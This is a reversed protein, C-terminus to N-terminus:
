WESQQDDLVIGRSRYWYRFIESTQVMWFSPSSYLQVQRSTALRSIETQWWNGHGWQLKSQRLRRFTTRPCHPRGQYLSFVSSWIQQWHQSVTWTEPLSTHVIHWHDGYPLTFLITTVNRQLNHPRNLLPLFSVIIQLKFIHTASPLLLSCLEHAIYQIVNGSLQSSTVRKHISPLLEVHISPRKQHWIQESWMFPEETKVIVERQLRPDPIWLTRLDIAIVYWGIIKSIKV